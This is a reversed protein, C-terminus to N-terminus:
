LGHQFASIPSRALCIFSSQQAAFAVQDDSSPSKVLDYDISGPKCADVLDIMVLGDSIRPDNFGNIRTSKEAASLQM